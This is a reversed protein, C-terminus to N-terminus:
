RGFGYLAKIANHVLGTEAGVKWILAAPIQKKLSPEVNLKVLQGSEIQPRIFPEVAMGWCLGYGIATKAASISECEWINPSIATENNNAHNPLYAQRHRKLDILSVTELSALPHEPTAVYLLEAPPLAISGLNSFIPQELLTFGIHAQEKIVSSIVESSTKEILKLKLRPFQTALMALIEKEFPVSYVSDLALTFEVEEEPEIDNALREFNECQAVVLKAEKLLLEGAPTLTPNRTSRDFLEQNLDLELNSITMSIASHTKKMKRAAASFSGTEAASVFAQLQLLNVTLM